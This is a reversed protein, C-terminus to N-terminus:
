QRALEKFVGLPDLRVYKRTLPSLTLHLGTPLDVKEILSREFLSDVAETLDSTFQIPGESNKLERLLVFPVPAIGRDMQEALYSLIQREMDTCLGSPGLKQNFSEKFAGLALTEQLFQSVRGGYYDKIQRVAEQLAQPNYKYREALEEWSGQDPLGEFTLYHNVEEMKWNGLRITTARAGQRNMRVVQRLPENSLLLLSSSHQEEVIRWFFPEYDRFDEGYPDLLPDTGQLVKEVSDLVILCRQSRLLELLLSVRAQFRDPITLEPALSPWLLSILDVVLEEPWPGYQVSKWICCDFEPQGESLLQGVLKSSLASKGIGSPGELAVCKQEQVAQGLQILEEQRGWFEAVEPPHGGLIQMTGPQASTILASNLGLNSLQKLSGANAELFRRLKRKSITPLDSGLERAIFSRLEHSASTEVYGAELNFQQAVQEYTKGEWAALLAAKMGETLQKDRKQIFLRDLAEVAQDYTLTSM